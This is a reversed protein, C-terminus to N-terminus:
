LFSTAVRSQRQVDARPSSVAQLSIGGSASQENDPNTYIKGAKCIFSSFIFDVCEVCLMCRIEARM